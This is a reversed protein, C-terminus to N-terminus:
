KRKSPLNHETQELARGDVRRRGVCNAVRRKGDRGRPGDTKGRLCVLTATTRNEKENWCNEAENEKKL